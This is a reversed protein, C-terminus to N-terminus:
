NLYHLTISNFKVHVGILLRLKKLFTLFSIKAPQWFIVASLRIPNFHVYKSIDSHLLIQSTEASWETASSFIDCQRLISSTLLKVFTLFNDIM